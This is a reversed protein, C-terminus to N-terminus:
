RLLNRNYRIADHISNKLAETCDVIMQIDDPFPIPEIDVLSKKEPSLATLDGIARASVYEFHTVAAIPQKKLLSQPNASNFEIEGTINCDKQQLQEVVACQVEKYKAIKIDNGATDKMVNGRDDLVYEFGDEITKKEIYDTSKVLDPSVNIAQLIIDVYYDYDTQKDYNRTYYEVWQSNLETANVAVLGDSFEQPLNIITRNVVSLLVRSMGKYRCEDILGDLDPYSGGSYERARTLENYAQRYSEKNNNEMLKKGHAYFFESANRKAAVIEADYDVFEYEVTRGNIHLPLVKRVTTQRYKMSNYLSFIEDWTDPNGELKLYRVREQDRENALNYAKDLMEADDESDPNKILNKVSKDILSDYDGKQLLKKSSACGSLILLTFLFSYWKM